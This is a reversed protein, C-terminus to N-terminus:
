RRRTTRSVEVTYVAGAVALAGASPAVVEMTPGGLENADGSSMLYFDESCRFTETGIKGIRVRYGNDSHGAVPEPLTVQSMLDDQNMCADDGEACLNAVWFGCDDGQVDPVLYYQSAIQQSWLQRHTPGYCGATIM